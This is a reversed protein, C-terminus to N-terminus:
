PKGTRSKKQKQQQIARRKLLEDRGEIKFIDSLKQFGFLRLVNYAVIEAQKITQSDEGHQNRYGFADKLFEHVLEEEENFRISTKM